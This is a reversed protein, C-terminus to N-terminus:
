RTSIGIGVNIPAITQITQAFTKFIDDKDESKPSTATTTLAVKKYSLKPSFTPEFTGIYIIAKIMIYLCMGFIMLIM